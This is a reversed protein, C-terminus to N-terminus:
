RGLLTGHESSELNVEQDSGPNSLLVLSHEREDLWSEVSVLSNQMKEKIRRGDWRPPPLLSLTVAHNKTAFQPLVVVTHSV